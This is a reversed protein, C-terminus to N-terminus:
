YGAVRDCCLLVGHLEADDTEFLADGRALNTGADAAAVLAAAVLAAAMLRRRATATVLAAAMLRRRATAAMLRRRAAAAMVAAAMVAATVLTAAMLGRRRATALRVRIVVFKQKRVHL